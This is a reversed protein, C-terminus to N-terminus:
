AEVLVFLEVAIRTLDVLILNPGDAFESYRGLAPPTKRGCEAGRWAAVALYGDFFDKSFGQAVFSKRYFARWRRLTACSPLADREPRSPRQNSDLRESWSGIEARDLALNFFGVKFEAKKTERASLM